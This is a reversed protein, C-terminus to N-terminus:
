NIHNVQGYTRYRSSHSSQVPDNIMSRLPYTAKLPPPPPPHMPIHNQITSSANSTPVYRFQDISNSRTQHYTTSNSQHQQRNNFAHGHIELSPLSPLTGSSVLDLSRSNLRNLNSSSSSGVRTSNTYPNYQQQQDPRRYQRDLAYLEEVSLGLPRQTSSQSSTVLM